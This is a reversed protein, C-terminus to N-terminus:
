QGGVAPATTPKRAPATYKREIAELRSIMEEAMMNMRNITVEEFKSVLPNLDLGSMNVTLDPAASPTTIDDVSFPSGGGLRNAAAQNGIFRGRAGDQQQKVRDLEAQQTNLDQIEKNVLNAFPGNQLASGRAKAQDSTELRNNFYDQAIKNNEASGAFQQEISLKGKNKGFFDAQILLRAKDEESLLGLGRQLEDNAKKKEEVISQEKELISTQIELEKQSAQNLRDQAEAKASAIVNPDNSSNAAGILTGAQQTLRNRENIKLFLDNNKQSFQEPNLNVSGKITQLATKAIDIKSDYDSIEKLSKQISTAEFKQKEAILDRLSIAAKDTADGLKNFLELDEKGLDQKDLFEMEKKMKDLVDTTQQIQKNNAFLEPMGVSAFIDKLQGSNKQINKLQDELNLLNSISAKVELANSIGLRAQNAEGSVKSLEEQLKNIRAAYEDTATGAPGLGGEYRKLEANVVALEEELGLLGVNGEGFILQARAGVQASSAGETSALTLLTQREILENRKKSRELSEDDIKKRLRSEETYLKQNAVKQASVQLQAVQNKDKPNFNVPITVGSAELEALLKKIGKGVNDRQKTNGAADLQNYAQIQKGIANTLAEIAERQKHAQAAAADNADAQLKTLLAAKASADSIRAFIDTVLALVATVAVAPGLASVLAAGFARVGAIAPKAAASIAALKTSITNSPDGGSAQNFMQQMFLTSTTGRVVSSGPFERRLQRLSAAKMTRQYRMVAESMADFARTTVGKIASANVGLHHMAVNVTGVAAAFALLKVPAGGFSNLLDLVKQLAFVATKLFSIVPGRAGTAMSIFTAMLKKVQAELTSATQAAESIASGYKSYEDQDGRLARSEAIIIDVAGNIQALLINRQRVGAASITVADQEAASMNYFAIQMDLLVDTLARAEGRANRFGIGTKELLVGANEANALRSEVTKIANGIEAGSRATTQATVAIIAALQSLTGGQQEFVSGTRSIAQLLDNTTVRYKNSLENLTDLTPILQDASLNFQTQAATLLNAADVVGLEAIRSAVLAATVSKVAEKQSQGTRLFVAAAKQGEVADTSTAVSLQVIKDTLEGAQKIRENWTSGLGAGVRALLVTGAELESIAQTASKVAAITGFVISTAATWLAVKVTSRAVSDGLFRWAKAGTLIEAETKGTLTNVRAVEVTYGHLANGSVRSFQQVSYTMGKADRIMKDATRTFGQSVLTQAQQQIDATRRANEALENQQKILAANPKSRLSPTGTLGSTRAVQTELPNNPNQREYTSIAVNATARSGKALKVKQVKLATLTYGQARLNQGQLDAAQQNLALIRRNKEVQGALTTNEKTGLELKKKSLDDTIEATHLISPDNANTKIFKRRRIQELTNADGEILAKSSVRDKISRRDEVYGQAKLAAENRDFIQRSVALEQRKRELRLQDQQAKKKNLDVQREDLTVENGKASIIQTANYQIGNEINQFQRQETSKTKKKGKKDFTTVTRVNSGVQDILDLPRQQQSPSIPYKRRRPQPFPGPPEVGGGGKGRGGGGGPSRTGSKPIPPIKGIVDLKIKIEINSKSMISDLAADIARLRKIVDSYGTGTPKPLSTKLILNSTIPM